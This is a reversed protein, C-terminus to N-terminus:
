EVELKRRERLTPDDALMKMQLSFDPKSSVIWREAYLMQLSNARMVVQPDYSSPLGEELPRVHQNVRDRDENMQQLFAAWERPSGRTPAKGKLENFGTRVKRAGEFLEAIVAPDTMALCLTSSLPLYITVGPSALGLSGRGRDFDNDLVLPHDGLHFPDDATTGILHWFKVLFHSVFKRPGDALMDMSFAKIEEESLMKFNSVQAPDIGRKRLAEAVGENMDKVRDRFRPTRVMQAACFSAITFRDEKSLSALKPERVLRGLIPALLGEIESLPEELSLTEGNVEVEYFRTRALVGRINPSFVKQTKKDFCWVQESGRKASADNVHLRLLVQPVYHQVEAKGDTRMGNAVTWSMIMISPEIAISGPCQPASPGPLCRLICAPRDTM